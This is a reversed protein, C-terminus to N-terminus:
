LSVEFFVLPSIFSRFTNWWTKDFDERDLVLNKQTWGSLGADDTPSLMVTVGDILVDFLRELTGGSVVAILSTDLRPERHALSPGRSLSPLSARRSAVSAKSAKRKLSSSMAGSVSPVRSLPPTSLEGDGEDIQSTRSPRYHSSRPSSAARVIKLVLEGNHVTVFSQGALVDSLDAGKSALHPRLPGVVDGPFTNNSLSIIKKFNDENMSFAGDDWIPTPPSPQAHDIPVAYLTEFPQVFDLPTLAPIPDNNPRWFLGSYEGRTQSEASCSLAHYQEM